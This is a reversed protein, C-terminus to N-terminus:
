GHTLTLNTLTATVNTNVALIQVSSGGSVTIPGAGTGDITISHATNSLTLTSALTITTASPFATASFTIDANSTDTNAQAVAWPLSGSTSSSNSTNTVLWNSPVVRDELGEIGLRYPSRAKRLGPRSFWSQVLRRVWDRAGHSRM